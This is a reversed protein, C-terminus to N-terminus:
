NASKTYITQTPYAFEIGRAAFQELLAFGFAQQVDLYDVMKSSEVYYVVDFVLASDGFSVFHARDFYAGELSDFIAKVIEPVERVQNQPTEYLIGFSMTARREKMKKFNQVRVSTLENNSVVLEEGQLTKIRTTKIGIKEVTGSDSGIVIFDGIRFPKDFYM